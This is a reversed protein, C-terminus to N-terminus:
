HARGRNTQKNITIHGWLIVGGLGVQLNQRSGGCEECENTLNKQLACIHVCM